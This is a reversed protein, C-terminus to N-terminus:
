ILNIFFYFSRLKSKFKSATQLSQLEKNQEISVIYPLYLEQMAEYDGYEVKNHITKILSTIEKLAERRHKILLDKLKDTYEDSKNHNM